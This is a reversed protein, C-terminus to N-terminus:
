CTNAKTRKSAAMMKANQEKIEDVKAKWHDMVKGTSSKMKESLEQHHQKVKNIHEHIANKDKSKEVISKMSAKVKEVNKQVVQSHMASVEKFTKSLIGHAQKMTEMNKHHADKAKNMDWLSSMDMNSFANFKKSANANESGTDKKAM